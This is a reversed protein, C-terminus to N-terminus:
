SKVLGTVAGVWLSTLLWGAAVHFYLYYRLFCGWLVHVCCTSIETGRNANPMWNTSQDFKILPIFSEVSYIFANFVPYDESVQPQGCKDLVLQRNPAKVYASERTPAFLCHSFGLHFVFTGVLIMLISAAFARLPAYGYGIIRGFLNYWWWGEGLFPTFKARDRNKEIMVQRAEREHGMQRFVAVLQEYPQALFSRRPQRHLWAIRSKADMPSRQFLREYNFGDLFLNGASPWSEKDDWLSATKALRLDLITKEPEIFGYMSLHGLDANVLTVIGEAKFGNRLFVSGGVKMTNANLAVGKDGLLHAGECVLNVGITTSALVTEGEAKFGKGLFISGGVKMTRANLPCGKANLLQADQCELDGGISSGLLAVEGESKFGKRLFIYLGVKIGYANLSKGNPNSLQISECELNIGITTGVLRVEGEAKFGNRLFISNKVTMTDASLSRGAPNSFQAGDCDLNGGITTGRLVVEGEATVNRLFISDGVKMGYANLSNGAPNSLQAGDCDVIGGITAGLLKVEGEAKFDAGLFVNGGIKIATAVLAQGNPNSLQAVRCSLNGGVTAGLLRVEGEAKFGNVLFVSGGINADDASLAKGHPNSLQTRECSLNGGVTAGLLRVEGEAKVNLFFVSHKIEAKDAIFAGGNPNSFQASGCQLGGDITAGLLSVEGEAQFGSHLSVTGAIKAGDAALARGNPNSLLAGECGLDGDITAAMLSVEGEAQFGNRLLVRGAIRAGNANLSKTLCGVLHLGRLRANQLLINGSFACNHATLSFKLEADSLDLDDDIRMGSLTLGRRYTVLASAELDTCVWTISEARVVRDSSWQAANAPNDENEEGTLASAGTGEQVARFLKEEAASLTGFKRRAL